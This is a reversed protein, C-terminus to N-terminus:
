ERSGEGDDRGQRWIDEDAGERRGRWRHFVALISSSWFPLCGFHFVFLVLTFQKELTDVQDEFNALKVYTKIGLETKQIKTNSIKQVVANFLAFHEYSDPPPADNDYLGM